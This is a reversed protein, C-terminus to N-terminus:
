PPARLAISELAELAAHDPKAGISSRHSLTISSRPGRRHFLDIEVHQVATDWRILPVDQRQRCLPTRWDGKRRWGM